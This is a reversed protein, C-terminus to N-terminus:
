MKFMYDAAYELSEKRRFSAACYGCLLKLNNKEKNKM